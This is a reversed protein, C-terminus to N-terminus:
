GIAIYQYSTGNTNPYKDAGEDSVTFGNSDLSLVRNDESFTNGANSVVVMLGQPDNAMYTDSTWGFQPNGGDAQSEWIVLVKPQFGVGTIANSTTGDGAYGGTKLRLGLAAIAQATRLPSMSLDAATGAEAQAQTAVFGARWVETWVTGVLQFVVVKAPADLVTDAGTAMSIEGSGGNLHKLTVARAANEGRIMLLRGAPTNTVAINTLDDTPDDGETDITHAFGTPTVSGSAITLESVVGGGPMEKVAALFAELSTKFEAETRAADTMYDTAPLATM